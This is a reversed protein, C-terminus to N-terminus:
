HGDLEAPREHGGFSRSKFSALLLHTLGDPAECLLRTDCM